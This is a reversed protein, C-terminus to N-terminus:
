PGRSRTTTSSNPVLIASPVGASTRALGSTTRAMQLRPMLAGSSATERDGDGVALDLRHAVGREFDAGALDDGDDAGVAGALSVSSLATM